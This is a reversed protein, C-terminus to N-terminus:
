SSQGLILVLKVKADVTSDGAKQREFQISDLSLNPVEALAAAVFKRVQPYTSKIPFIVQYHTLRGVNDRVARYEGQELKLSQKDAVAYIKELLDAIHGARPFFEYFAHLKEGSSQPREGAARVSKEDLHAAESQLSDLRIQEPRFTSFYFGLAFALVGLGVVGPWGLSEVSFVIMAQLRKM